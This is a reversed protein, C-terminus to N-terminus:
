LKFVKGKRQFLVDFVVYPCSSIICSSTHDIEALGTIRSMDLVGIGGIPGDTFHNAIEADMQNFYSSDKM